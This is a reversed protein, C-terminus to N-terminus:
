GGRGIRNRPFVLRALVWLLLAIPVGILLVTGVTLAVGLVLMAVAALVIAVVALIPLGILWARWGTILIKKNDTEFRFEM